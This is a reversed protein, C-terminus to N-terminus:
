ASIFESREVGYTLAIVKLNDPLSQVGNMLRMTEIFPRSNDSDQLHLTLLALLSTVRARIEPVRLAAVLFDLSPQHKGLQSYAHRCASVILEHAHFFTTSQLKTSTLGGYVAELIDQMKISPFQKYVPEEVSYIAAVTHALISTSLHFIDNDSAHKRLVTVIHPTAVRAVEHRSELGGHRTITALTQLVIVVSEEDEFM